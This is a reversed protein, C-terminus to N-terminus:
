LNLNSYNVWFPECKVVHVWNDYFKFKGFPTKIHTFVKGTRDFAIWQRITFGNQTKTLDFGNIAYSLRWDKEQRFPIKKTQGVKMKKLADIIVPSTPFYDSQLVLESGDGFMYHKLIVLGETPISKYSNWLLFCVLVIAISKILKIM